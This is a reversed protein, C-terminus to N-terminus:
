NLFTEAHVFALVVSIMAASASLLALGLDMLWAFEDDDSIKLYIFFVQSKSRRDWFYKAILGSLILTGAAGSISIHGRVLAILVFATTVASASLSIRFLWSKPISTNLM